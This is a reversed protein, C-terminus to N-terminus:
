DKFGLGGLIRDVKEDIVNQMERCYGYLEVKEFDKLYKKCDNIIFQHAWEKFSAVNPHSKIFTELDQIPEYDKM